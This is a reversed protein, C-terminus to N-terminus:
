AGYLVLEHLVSRAIVGVDVLPKIVFGFLKDLTNRRLVRCLRWPLRMSISAVETIVV